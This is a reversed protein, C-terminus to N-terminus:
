EREQTQKNTHWTRMDKTQDHLHTSIGKGRTKTHTGELGEDDYKETISELRHEKRQRGGKIKKRTTRM